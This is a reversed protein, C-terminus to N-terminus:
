CSNTGTSNIWIRQQLLCVAFASLQGTGGEQWIQWIQPVKSAVGLVGAGAQLYGLANMDVINGQGFLAYGSAALAAVFTAATTSRGTYALILVAIAIDQVAIFATEGYTSFPFGHRVNYALTIVFSATELLYSLFSLGQASQSNVLKLLQPIKVVASAGVIGIGLAKSIALSFCEGNASSLDLQLVLSRYCKQGLLSIAVDNIPNPLNQTITQLTPRLPAIISDLADM